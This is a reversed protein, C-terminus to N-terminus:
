LQEGFGDCWKVVKGELREIGDVMGIVLVRAVGDASLM